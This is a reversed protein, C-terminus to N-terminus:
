DLAHRLDAHHQRLWRRAAAHDPFHRAVLAWFRPPHGRVRLHALEHVVVYDLMDPPCLVLRWNFSLTGRASASGWRTRQDRIAVGRPTLGMEAGREYVRELIVSRALRRLSAELIVAPRRGDGPALSIVISPPASVIRVRTAMSGSRELRVPHAIGSLMVRRGDGFAPRQALVRKLEQIRGVHREIWGTHRTVLEAAARGPARDPLVVITEGADNITVRARRARTSRRVSYAPLRSSV